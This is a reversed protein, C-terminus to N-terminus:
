KVLKKVDQEIMLEENTHVQYMKIKSDNNSILKWDSYQQTLKKENLKLNLIPLKNILMKIIPSSNEGIGATFVIADIKGYNLIENAYAVIYKAIRSIFMKLGLIANKNRKKALLLVDRCDNCGTICKLGSEKNLLNDVKDATYGQRILYTVVSPDVDGSRTGMMLGELPTLGMTTNFSKNNVIECISAGNGLHCVILNLNKKKLISKMKESIFRYSTGHAGYKYIKFKKVVKQDLPYNNFDPITRHFSTDFVCVNKVCPLLKEFVEITQVEPPNHLPALPFLSILYKKVATTVVVSKTCLSGGMVIRHGVAHIDNLNNIIKNNRLEDLIKQIGVKHNSIPLIQEIKNQKYKLSFISHTNGVKEIQGSAIVEDNSKRFIKYKISSSGANIVIIVKKNLKKM